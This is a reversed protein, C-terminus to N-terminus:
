RYSAPPHAPFGPRRHEVGGALLDGTDTEALARVAHRRARRADEAPSRAAPRVSETAVTAAKSQAVHAGPAYRWVHVWRGDTWRSPNRNLTRSQTLWASM